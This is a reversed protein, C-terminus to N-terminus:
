IAKNNSKEKITFTGYYYLLRDVSQCIVNFSSGKQHECHLFYSFVATFYELKCRENISEITYQTM